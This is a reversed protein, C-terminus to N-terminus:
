EGKRGGIQGMRSREKGGVLRALRAALLGAREREMGLLDARRAGEGENALSYGV